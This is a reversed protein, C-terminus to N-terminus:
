NGARGRATAEPVLSRSVREAWALLSAPSGVSGTPLGDRPNGDEAALYEAPLVVVQQADLPALGLRKAVPALEARTTRRDLDARLFQLRAESEELTTRSQDLALSLQAVRSSQGVEVLLIGTVAMALLWLEPRAVRPDAARWSSKTGRSM